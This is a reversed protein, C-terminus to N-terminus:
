LDTESVFEDGFKVISFFLLGKDDSKMSAGLLFYDSFRIAPRVFLFIV